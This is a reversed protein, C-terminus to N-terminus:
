IMELSYNMHPPSHTLAGVSIRDIGTRAVAAITKETIGGSAELVPRRTKHTVCYSDVISVARRLTQPPMNDLLIIDPCACLVAKLQVLTDVEVEIVIGRAVRTRADAVVTALDRRDKTFAHQAFIHNDKILVQDFLGFRHNKGGGCRVADREFVRLTPTTKRTDLIDVGYKEVKNVYSRTMTAIGSMMGLFNLCLREIKLISKVPGKLALVADGKKVTTGNKKKTTVTVTGGSLAAIQRVVDVGSVVGSEKAIIVARVVPDANFVASSTIDGTGIDERLAKKIIETKEKEQRLKM